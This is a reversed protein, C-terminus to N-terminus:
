PLLTCWYHTFGDCYKLELGYECLRRVMYELTQIMIEALGDTQRHYATSFSLNTGFLHHLNKWLASPFKPSRDSIINKFIGTWSVAKNWILLATDM